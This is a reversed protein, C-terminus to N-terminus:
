SGGASQGSPSIRAPTVCCADPHSKAQQEPLPRHLAWPNTPDRATPRLVDALYAESDLHHRKAAGQGRLSYSCQPWDSEALQRKGSCDLNRRCRTASPASADPGDPQQRDPINRTLRSRAYRGLRGLEEFFIQDRGCDAVQAAAEAANREALRAVRESDAGVEGMLRLAPTGRALLNRRRARRCVAQRLVGAGPQATEPSRRGASRLVEAAAHALAPRRWSRQREIGYYIKDYGGSLTPRCRVGACLGEFSIEEPGDRKHNRTYDYVVDPHREDGVYAWFM